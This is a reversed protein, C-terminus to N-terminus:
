VSVIAYTIIGDVTCTVADLELAKNTTCKLWPMAFNGSIPLVWGGEDSVGMVGSLPTNDEDQLTITGAGTDAMLFLGYVWIQKSGGPDAVLVQDVAAAANVAATHYSDITPNGAGVIATPYNNVSVDGIDVGDNAPLGEGFKVDGIYTADPINSGPRVYAGATIVNNVTVDGIDVGSNAALIASLPVFAQAVGRGSITITGAAYGSIRCRLQELGGPVWFMGDAATTPGVALSNLNLAQIAYWTTGDITGEFNITATTIGEVQAYVGPVGGTDMATGNGDAVAGAQFAHEWEILRRAM